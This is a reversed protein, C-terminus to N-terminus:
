EAAVDLFNENMSVCKGFLGPSNFDFDEQLKIMERWNFRDGTLDTMRPLIDTEQYVEKWKNLRREASQYIPQDMSKNLLLQYM